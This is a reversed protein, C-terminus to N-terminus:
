TKSHNQFASLPNMQINSNLTWKKNENEIMRVKSYDPDDGLLVQMTKTIPHNDHDDVMSNQSMMYDSDVSLGCNDTQYYSNDHYQEYDINDYNINENLDHQEKNSDNNRSFEDVNSQIKAKNRMIELMRNLSNNKLNPLKEKEPKKQAFQKLEDEVAALQIDIEKKSLSDRIGGSIYRNDYSKMIERVHDAKYESGPSIKNIDVDLFMENNKNMSELKENTPEITRFNEISIALNGKNQFKM